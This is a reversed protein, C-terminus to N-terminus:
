KEDGSRWFAIIETRADCVLLIKQGQVVLCLYKREGSWGFDINETGPDRFLSITQGM